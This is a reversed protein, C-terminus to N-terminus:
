TQDEVVGVSPAAEAEAPEFGRQGETGKEVPSAKSDEWTEPTARSYRTEFSVLRWTGDLKSVREPMKGRVNSQVGPSAVRSKPTQSHGGGAHTDTLNHKGHTDV